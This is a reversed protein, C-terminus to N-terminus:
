EGEKQSSAADAGREGYFLTDIVESAGALCIGFAGTSLYSQLTVGLSYGVGADQLLSSVGTSSDWSAALSGSIM